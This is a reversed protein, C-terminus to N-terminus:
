TLTDLGFLSGRKKEGKNAATGVDRSVEPDFCQWIQSPSQM